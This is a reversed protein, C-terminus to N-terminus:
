GRECLIILRRTAHAVRNILFSACFYFWSFLSFSYPRYVMDGATGHGMNPRKPPDRLARACQGDFAGVAESM